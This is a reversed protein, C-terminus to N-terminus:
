VELVLRVTGHFVRATGNLFRVMDKVFHPSNFRAVPTIPDTRIEIDDCSMKKKTSIRSFDSKPLFFNNNYVCDKKKFDM